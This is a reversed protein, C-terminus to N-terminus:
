LSVLPKQKPALKTWHSGPSKGKHSLNLCVKCRSGRGYPFATLPQPENSKCGTQDHCIRTLAESERRREYLGCERCTWEVGPMLLHPLVNRIVNGCKPCTMILGKYEPCGFAAWAM